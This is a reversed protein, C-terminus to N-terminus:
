KKAILAFEQPEQKDYEHVLSEVTRSLSYQQRINRRFVKGIQKREEQNLACMRAIRHMLAVTNHVPFRYAQDSVLEKHQPIDSVLVPNAYAMAEIVSYPLGEESSAHVFCRAHSYLQELLPGVVFGTFIISSEGAAMDRLRTTYEDTYYGDGVIVLHLGAFLGTQVGRKWAAIITHIEKHPVFRSVVLVYKEKQIGLEQILKKGINKHIKPVANPIYEAACGYTEAVYRQLARSVVITNHPVNCAMWEGARLALRAFWGWKKHLRDISHFTTIVRIRPAFIRPIWSCLAPGVGHYHITDVGSAMAHLTAFFAYTITDLHKTHASPVYVVRVGKYISIRTKTYWLRSFVTIDKGRLVLHESIDHVHREVGGFGAPIGKQGIMAIKM